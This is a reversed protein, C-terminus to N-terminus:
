VKHKLHKFCIWGRLSLKFMSKEEGGGCVCPFIGIESILM